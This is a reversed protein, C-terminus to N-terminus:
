KRKVLNDKTLLVKRNLFWMFIKIKLLIKLKWLFFQPYPTHSNMIDEYMSKVSFLGSVNLNWIFKDQEDVLHVMMLRRCLHLWATWKNGILRRRFSVNLPVHTLVSAVTVNKHQAIHYLSPYQCALTTNGLWVDEWFRTGLGDGV